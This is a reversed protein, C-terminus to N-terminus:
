YSLLHYQHSVLIQVLCTIIRFTKRAASDSSYYLSKKIGDFVVGGSYVIMKHEDAIVIKIKNVVVWHLLLITITEKNAFLFYSNMM